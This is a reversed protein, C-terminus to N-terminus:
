GEKTKTLLQTYEKLLQATSILQADGEYPYKRWGGYSDYEYFHAAWEAFEKCRNNAELLEKEKESLATKLKEYDEKFGNVLDYAFQSDVKPQEKSQKRQKYM